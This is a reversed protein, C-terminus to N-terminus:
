YGHVGREGKKKRRSPTPAHAKGPIPGAQQATLGAQAPSPARKTPQNQYGAPPPLIQTPPLPPPVSVPPPPPPFSPPTRRGHAHLGLVSPESHTERMRENYLTKDHKEKMMDAYLGKDYM